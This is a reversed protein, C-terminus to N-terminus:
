SADNRFTFQEMQEKLNLAHAALEESSASSEEAAASNSEVVKSITEIGQDIQKMAEAQDECNEKVENAIDVVELVGETVENLIRATEKAIKDGSQTQVISAEILSRTSGAAESCQQALKGIEDAVVAFGRGAEGARAAEISANLSLLNTQSAISEITEIITSIEDSTKSIQDMASTMEQMTTNSRDAKEKVEAARGSAEEAKRASGVAKDTVEEVTALLEEVTSAQEAAGEALAQAEQAMQESAVNVQQTSDAISSMARSLRRNIARLSELIPAFGGVYKDEAKTSIDFNGSAMLLLLEKEDKIITTLTGIFENVNVSLDGFEDKSEYDVHVELDGGSIATLKKRVEGLPLVISSTVSNSITISLLFVFVIVVAILIIVFWFTLAAKRAAQRSGNENYEVLREFSANFKEYIAKSEGLMMEAALDQDGNQSEEIVKASEEKYEAWESRVTMLLERDEEEQINSEYEASADSIQQSLDELKAEYSSMAAEDQATLHGYQAIRYESTLMNMEQALSAAPMWGDAILKLETNLLNVSIIAMIGVAIMGGTLFRTLMSLKKRVKLNKIKNKLNGM